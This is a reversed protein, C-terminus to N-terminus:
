SNRYSDILILDALDKPRGLRKKWEYVDDLSLYPISEVYQADELLQNVKKGYWDRGIDFVGKKLVTQDSWNDHDWGANELLDYVQQSVILDIDSSERIGLAGLIGSGVVIFSDNPLNLEKIKAAVDM